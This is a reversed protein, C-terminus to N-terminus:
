LLRIRGSLLEQMIGQKITRAKALKATTADIDADMDALVEGIAAQEDIPPCPVWPESFFSPRLNPYASTATHERLQCVGVTSRLVFSLFLGSCRGEVPRLRRVFNSATMGPRGDCWWTKGLGNGSTTIVVDDVKCGSQDKESSTLFREAHGTLKGDATIDGARIVLARHPSDPNAEPRGWVGNSKQVIDALAKFHWQRSFGPLRKAGTLLAQMAGQKIARKKALLQELARISDGADAAVALVAEQENRPPLPLRIGNLAKTGLAPLATTAVLAGLNTSQFVLFAFGPNLREDVVTYGAMNNDLCSPKVLLKKRELFVAAGVKAFVITLPPFVKAALRQRTADTIYHNAIEMCTENGAHNMDSVKFFPYEGFRQGQASLPFCTGGAFAGVSGASVIVWGPPVAHLDAAEHSPSVM